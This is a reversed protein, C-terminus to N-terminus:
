LMALVIGSIAAYDRDGSRWFTVAAAAVGLVPTVLLCVLGLATIALPDPPRQALARRVDGLSTFVDVARGAERNHVVRVIERAQPHGEAAYFVLGGLVLAISFLGGFTLIRAIIRETAIPRSM